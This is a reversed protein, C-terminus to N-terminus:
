KYEQVLDLINDTLLNSSVLKTYLHGGSDNFNLFNEWADSTQAKPIVTVSNNEYPASGQGPRFPPCTPVGRKLGSKTECNFSHILFDSM